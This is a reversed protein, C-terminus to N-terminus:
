LTNGYFLWKVDALHKAYLKRRNTKREDTHNPLLMLHAKSKFMKKMKFDKHIDKCVAGSM